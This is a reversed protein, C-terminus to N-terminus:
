RPSVLWKTFVVITFVDSNILWKRSPLSIVFKSVKEVTHSFRSRIFLMVEPVSFSMLWYMLVNVCLPRM